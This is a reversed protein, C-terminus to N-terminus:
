QDYQWMQNVVCRITWCCAKVQLVPRLKTIKGFKYMYACIRM